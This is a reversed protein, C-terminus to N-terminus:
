VTLRSKILASRYAVLLGQGVCAPATNAIASFSESRIFSSRENFACAHHVLLFTTHEGYPDENRPTDNNHVSCLGSPSDIQMRLWINM